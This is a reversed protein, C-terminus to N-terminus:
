KAEEQRLAKRIERQKIISLPDNVEQLIVIAQATIVKVTGDLLRDNPHVVYTKADPGQVMAIYGGRSQVIGKVTLEDAALSSLGEGQRAGQRSEGRQMLSVFPDRRGEPKYTFQETPPSPSAAPAAPPASPQAPQQAPASQHAGLAPAVIWWTTVVAVRISERM